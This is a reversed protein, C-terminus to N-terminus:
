EAGPQFIRDFVGGDAFHTMHAKTSGGSVEDITFLALKPFRPACRAAVTSSRPRYFDRDAIEQGEENYLYQRAVAQDHRRRRGAEDM